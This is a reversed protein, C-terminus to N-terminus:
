DLVTSMRAIDLYTAIFADQM